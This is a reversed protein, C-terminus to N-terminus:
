AELPFADSEAYYILADLPSKHGPHSKLYATWDQWLEQVLDVELFYYLGESEYRKLGEEAHMDVIMAESEPRFHGEIRRAFVTSIIPREDMPEVPPPSGVIQDIVDKLNM